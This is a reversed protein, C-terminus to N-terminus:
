KNYQLGSVLVAHQMHNLLDCVSLLKLKNGWGAVIIWREGAPSNVYALGLIAFEGEGGRGDRRKMDQGSGFDYVRLSGDM